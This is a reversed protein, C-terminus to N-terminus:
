CCYLSMIKGKPPLPITHAHIYVNNQEGHAVCAILDYFWDVKLARLMEAAIVNFFFLVSLTIIRKKKDPTSM